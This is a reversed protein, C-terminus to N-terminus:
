FSRKSVSSGAQPSCVRSSPLMPHLPLSSAKVQLRAAVRGNATLHARDDEKSSLYGFNCLSDLAARVAAPEPPEIVNELVPLVPGQVVSKFRLVLSDLPHEHIESPAYQALTDYKQKTFLRWATGPGVRATRGARQIASAQSIWRTVLTSRHFDRHYEMRKETGLDVVHDCAPITVSSEAAPTAVIVKAVDADEKLVEAQADLPVESHIVFLKYRLRSVGGERRADLEEEVFLNYLVEIEYLGSVFVLVAGGRTSVERVVAAALKLQAERVGLEPVGGAHLNSMQALLSQAARQQASSMRPHRAIDELHLELLPFRRAGVLVPTIPLRQAAEFYSIYIELNPTASMLVLKMEPRSLLLERAFYCLIETDVSREHVEDIVLYSIQLNGAGMGVRACMYGATCVTLQEVASTKRVGGGLRLGVAEGLLGRLRKYLATAALRGPLTVYIRSREKWSRRNARTAGETDLLLQLLMAPVRSSKGCGSEGQVLTVRNAGIHHLLREKHDDMPLAGDAEPACDSPRASGRLAPPVYASRQAPSRVGASGEGSTGGAPIATRGSFRWVLTHYSPGHFLATADNVAWWNITTRSMSSLMGLQESKLVEYCIRQYRLAFEVDEWKLIAPCEVYRIGDQLVARMARMQPSTALAACEAESATMEICRLAFLGVSETRHTLDRPVGVAGSARVRALLTTVFPDHSPPLPVLPYETLSRHAYLLRTLHIAEQLEASEAALLKGAQMHMAIAKLTRFPEQRSFEEPLTVLGPQRGYSTSPADSQCHQLRFTSPSFNSTVDNGLFISWEVLMSESFEMLVAQSLVNALVARSLHLASAPIGVDTYRLYGFPIVTCNRFFIYDLVTGYIAAGTETARCAIGTDVEALCDVQQVGLDRLTVRTQHKFLPPPPLDGHFSPPVGHTIYDHLALDSETYEKRRRELAATKSKRVSPGDWWVEPVLGCKKIKEVESRILSSLSGYEDSHVCLPNDSQRNVGVENVLHLAWSPGDILLTEASIREFPVDGNLLCERIVRSLCGVEM